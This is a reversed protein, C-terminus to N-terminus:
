YLYNELLFNRTPWVCNHLYLMWKERKKEIAGSSFTSYSRWNECGNSKEASQTEPIGVRGCVVFFDLGNCLPRTNAFKWIEGMAGLLRAAATEDFVRAGAGRFSGICMTQGNPVGLAGEYRNEPDHSCADDNPQKHKHWHTSNTVM